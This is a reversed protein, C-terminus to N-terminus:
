MFNEFYIYIYILMFLISLFSSYRRLGSRYRLQRDYSHSRKPLPDNGNHIIPIPETGLDLSLIETISIKTKKRPENASKPSIPENGNM